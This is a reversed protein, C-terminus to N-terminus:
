ALVLSELQMRRGAIRELTTLPTGCPPKVYVANQHDDTSSTWYKKRSEAIERFMAAVEPKHRSTYVEVGRAYDIIALTQDRDRYRTPHAIVDVAGDARICDIAEQPTWGFLDKNQGDSSWFLVHHRRFLDFLEMHREPTLTSERVEDTPSRGAVRFIMSQLAPFEAPSLRELDNKPDIGMRDDVSLQSLWTMVFSKWREQVKLGRRYLATSELQPVSDIPYYALVHFQEEGSCAYHLHATVELAPIFHMGAREAAAAGRRVGALVDHDAIAIAKLGMRRRFDVYDEPSVRGDSFYTHGHLDTSVFM